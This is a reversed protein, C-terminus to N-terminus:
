ETRHVRVTADPLSDRNFVARYGFETAAIRNPIEGFTYTNYPVTGSGNEVAFQGDTRNFRESGFQEYVEEINIDFQRLVNFSNRISPLAVTIIPDRSLPPNSASPQLNDFFDQWKDEIRIVEM